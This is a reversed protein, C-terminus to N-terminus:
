RSCLARLQSTPYYFKHVQYSYHGYRPGDSVKVMAEWQRASPRTELFLRVIAIDEFDQDGQIKEQINLEEIIEDIKSM